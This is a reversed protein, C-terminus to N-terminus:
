NRGHRAYKENAAAVSQAAGRRVNPILHAVRGNGGSKPKLSHEKSRVPGFECHLGCFSKVELM